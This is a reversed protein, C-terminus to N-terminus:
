IFKYVYKLELRGFFTKFQHEKHVLGYGLVQNDVDLSHLLYKDVQNAVGKFECKMTGYSNVCTNYVITSPLELKLYFHGISANTDVDFVLGLNKLEKAFKFGGGM